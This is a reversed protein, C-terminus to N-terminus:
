IGAALVMIEITNSNDERLTLGQLIIAANPLAQQLQQGIAQFQEMTFQENAIIHALVSKADMLKNSEILPNHLTKTLIETLTGASQSKSSGAVAIGPSKIVSIFDNFDMNILGTNSLMNTLHLLIELLYANSADLAAELRATAGLASILQDNPLVVVAYNLEKFQTVSKQALTARRKGEFNFPLTAFALLPISQQAAIKAIAVAAGSGNGGGFGTVMFIIDTNSLADIILHKVQEVAAEALETNGGTSRGATLEKGIAIIIDAEVSQLARLDTSVAMTTVNNPLAKGKLLQLASCGRGGVCLLIINTTNKALNLM